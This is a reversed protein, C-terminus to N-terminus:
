SCSATSFIDASFSYSSPCDRQRHLLPLLRPVCEGGLLILELEETPHARSTPQDRRPWKTTLLGHCRRGRWPEGVEMVPLYNRAVVRTVM